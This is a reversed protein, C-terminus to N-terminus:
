PNALFFPSHLISFTDTGELCEGNEAERYLRTVRNVSELQEAAENEM